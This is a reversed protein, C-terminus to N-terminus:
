RSSASLHSDFSGYFKDFDKIKRQVDLFDAMLKSQNESAGGQLDRDLQAKLEDAQHRFSHLVSHNLAIEVDVAQLTSLDEFILLRQLGKQESWPQEQLLSDLKSRASNQVDGLNLASAALFKALGPHEVLESLAREPGLVSIIKTWQAEWRSPERLAFFVIEDSRKLPKRSPLTRKPSKPQILGRNSSSSLPASSLSSSDVFGRSPQAPNFSKSLVGGMAQELLSQAVGTLESAEKLRLSRALADPILQIKQVIDQLALRDGDGGRSVRARWVEQMWGTLLSVAGSLAQEISSLGDTMKVWEDPDMGEPPSIGEILLGRKLGLDMARWRADSGAADGDFCIVIREAYKQLVDLHESTLATGCTAVVNPMGASVLALVDFYGEVVIVMHSARISSQAQKLGYLTRSKQFLASESSNIFKPVSKDTIEPLRRGGFGVVQAKENLIPFIIRQRFSDYYEGTNRQSKRLLGLEEALELPAKARSLYDALENGAMSDSLGIFYQEQVLASVGRTKLLYNSYNAQGEASLVRQRYFQAAFANLRYSKEREERRKRYLREAEPDLDGTHGEPIQFKARYALEELAERFSVQHLASWFGIVDGGAKCGFCHYFGKESNVSFSPTKESHFPCLGTFRGGVKRLQVFQGIVEDIPNLEKIKAITETSIPGSM